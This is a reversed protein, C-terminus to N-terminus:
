PRMAPSRRPWNSHRISRRVPNVFMNVLGAGYARTADISTGTVAMEMALRYPLQRPLRLLGGGAALDAGSRQSVSIRTRLPSSSIVRSPWRLGGQWRSGEVAAILVKRPPTEGLGAFGRKTFPREGAAFAKLDVGSCFYGESGNFGVRLTDDQELTDMAAEIELAVSLNVANRTQPRDITVVLIGNSRDTPVSARDSM